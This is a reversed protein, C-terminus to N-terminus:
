VPIGGFLRVGRRTDGGRPRGIVDVVQDRQLLAVRALDDQRRQGRGGRVSASPAPATPMDFDRHGGSELRGTSAASPFQKRLRRAGALKAVLSAKEFQSVAGLIQRILVATPMDSAFADPDDV